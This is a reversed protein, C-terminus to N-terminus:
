LPTVLELLDQVSKAKGVKEADLVIDFNSDAESIFTLIALSDWVFNDLSSNLDIEGSELELIETLINLLITEKNM